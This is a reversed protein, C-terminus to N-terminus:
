KVPIQMYAHTYAYVRALKKHSKRMKLTSSPVVTKVGFFDGNEWSSLFNTWNAWSKYPPGKRVENVELFLLKKLGDTPTTRPIQFNYIKMDPMLRPLIHPELEIKSGGM